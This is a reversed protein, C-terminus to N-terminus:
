TIRFLNLPNVDWLGVNALRKKIGEPIRTPDKQQALTPIAIQPARCRELTKNPVAENIQKVFWHGNPHQVSFQFDYVGFELQAIMGEAIVGEKDAFFLEFEQWQENDLVSVTINTNGVDIAIFM